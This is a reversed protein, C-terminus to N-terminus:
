SHRYFSFIKKKLEIKEPAAEVVLNVMRLEELSDTFTIRSMVEKVDGSLKGKSSLKELSQTIQQRARVLSQPDVDYACVEYGAHAFVQVIGAGMQGAGVVGNVQKLM